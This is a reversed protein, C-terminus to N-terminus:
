EKFNDRYDNLRDEKFGMTYITLVDEEAFFSYDSTVARIQEEIIDKLDNDGLIKSAENIVMDDKTIIRVRENFPVNKLLKKVKM